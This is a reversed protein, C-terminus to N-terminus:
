KVVGEQMKVTQKRESVIKEIRNVCDNVADDDAEFSTEGAADVMLALKRKYDWKDSIRHNQLVSLITRDLENINNIKYTLKTLDYFTKCLTIVPRRMLLGEWGTTGHLTIILNAHKIFKTSNCKADVLVIGPLSLLHKYFGSPRMGINDVHERVYLKYGSPIMKVLMEILTIADGWVPADTTLQQEPDQHLPLYIYNQKALEDETFSRFLVQRRKYKFYLKFWFWNRKLFFSKYYYDKEYGSMGRVLSKVWAIAGYCTQKLVAKPYMAIIRKADRTTEWEVFHSSFKSNEDIYELAKGTSEINNRIKNIYAKELDANEHFFYYENFRCREVLISAEQPNFFPINRYQCIFAFLLNAAGCYNHIIAADPQSQDLMKNFIVFFRQIVRKSNDQELRCYKGLPSAPHAFNKKTIMRNIRREAYFCRNLSLGIKQELDAMQTLVRKIESPNKEWEQSKRIDIQRINYNSNVLQSLGLSPVIQTDIIWKKEKAMKIILKYEIREVHVNSNPNSYGAFYFVKM